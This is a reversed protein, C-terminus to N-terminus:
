KPSIHISLRITQNTDKKSLMVALDLPQVLFRIILLIKEIEQSFVSNSAQNKTTFACLLQLHKSM